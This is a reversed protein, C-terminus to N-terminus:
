PIGLSLQWPPPPEDMMQIWTAERTWSRYDPRRKARPILWRDVACRGIEPARPRCVVLSSDEGRLFERSAPALPAAFVERHIGHRMLDEPLGAEALAARVVRMKWNPGMGFRHRWWYDHDVLRLLNRMLLFLDAPIHYHGWGETMGIREFELLGPLKLRNYLSSRGLASTVTILVLQAHKKQQSIIGETNGYKAIFAECVEQSTMLSAVLKGGLLHSYPPVAGVIYADMVNVLRARRDDANWGIWEDRARLNFVPDTLAFIGILKGNANDRVLFRLRRGYGRSVPVSWLLTTLRFLDSDETESEVVSIVPEVRDPSVEWGDAFHRRLLAQGRKAVFKAEKARYEERQAAHSRRIFEKTSDEELLSDGNTPLGLLARHGLVRAHIEARLQDVDEQSYDANEFNELQRRTPAMPMESMAVGWRHVLGILPIPGYLLTLLGAGCGWKTSFCLM